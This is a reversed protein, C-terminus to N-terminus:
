PLRGAPGSCPPRWPIVQSGVRVRMLYGGAGRAQTAAALGPQGRLLDTEAGFVGPSPELAEPLGLPPAEGWEWGEGLPPPAAGGCLSSPLHPPLLYKIPNIAAIRM